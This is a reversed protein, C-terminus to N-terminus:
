RVADAPALCVANSFSSAWFIRQTLFYLIGSGPVAFITDGLQTQHDIVEVYRRYPAVDGAPMWTCARKQALRLPALPRREGAVIGELGRSLPM